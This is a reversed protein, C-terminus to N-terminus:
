SKRSIRTTIWEKCHVATVGFLISWSIQAPYCVRSGQWFTFGSTLIFYAYIGALIISEPKRGSVFLIILGAITAIVPIYNIYLKEPQRVLERIEDYNKRLLYETMGDAALTNEIVLETYAKFLKRPHNAILDKLVKLYYQNEAKNTIGDPNQEELEKEFNKRVAYFDLGPTKDAITKAGLYVGAAALGTGAVVATGHVKYNRIIWSGVLLATLAVSVSTFIIIKRKAIKLSSQPILLTIILFLLPLFQAVSRTFTALALLAGLILARKLNPNEIQKLFLLICICLIFVFLSESLFMVSLGLATLSTANILGAVIGVTRNGTLTEGIKYILGATLASIIIQITLAFYYSKFSVLLLAALFASYGFGTMYLYHENAITFNSFGNAINIYLVTDPPGSLLSEIPSQTSIILWYILRLSLAVGTIIWFTKDRFIINSFFRKLSM